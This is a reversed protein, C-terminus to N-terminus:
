VKKRIGKLMFALGIAVISSIAFIDGYETYFSTQKLAPVQMTLAKDKFLATKALIKGKPDIFGSIGTNAARAVTRRNEVARFVAISFHQYAASTDGFWADNTITTLIDAGNKVFESAISPFLIEFCILVGTKHGNFALPIFKKDGASFDGAQATIKGLFKLYGGLPVYEGFPVLHHKDYTGTVISFRNLMYARNYFLTKEGKSEFAPSGFLFNTKFSRACQDVRNSLLRDSGYYFPLATEPWIVLDPKKASETLSLNIYKEITGTKFADSWKLDQKINGQVITLTTKQATKIQSDVAKIKKQGYFLACSVIIITYIFPVFLKKKHNKKLSKLTLALLYNVLVIIFSVGYVGSFDAVQILLLNKYQSYGLAGWPFGTFAYTRIYELGTWLCAAFIPAFLPEPDTKKLILVFVAPYLALYFCLLTLTSVALVPNLAGYVHITPVIWYILTFFHFLGATFGSYFAQKLTMAPISLLLPVLAFFALYFLDQRPFSLTLILGTVMAPFYKVPFEIKKQIMM